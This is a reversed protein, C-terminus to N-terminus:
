PSKTWLPKTAEVSADYIFLRFDTIPSIIIREIDDNTLNINASYVWKSEEGVECEIKQEPKEIKTGNALLIVLGKKAVNLTSGYTKLHMYTRTGYKSSKIKMFYILDNTGFEASSPSKFTTDGTFKDIRLILQSCDMQATTLKSLILFYFAINLKKM